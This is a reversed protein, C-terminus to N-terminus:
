SLQLVFYKTQKITVFYKLYKKALYHSNKIGLPVRKYSIKQNKAPLKLPFHHNVQLHVLGLFSRINLLLCYGPYKRNSLLDLIKKYLKINM